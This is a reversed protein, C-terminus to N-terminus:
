HPASCLFVKPEQHVEVTFGKAKFSEEKTEEVAKFKAWARYVAEYVSSAQVETSHEFGERDSFRVTCRCVRGV